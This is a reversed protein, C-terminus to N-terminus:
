QGPLSESLLRAASEKRPLLYNYLLAQARQRQKLCGCPM